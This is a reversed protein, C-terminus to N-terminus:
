VEANLKSARREYESNLLSYIPPEIKYMGLDNTPIQERAETETGIIWDFQKDIERYTEIIDEYHKILTGAVSLEEEIVELKEDNFRDAFVVAEEWSNIGTYRGNEAEQLWDGIDIYGGEDRKAVPVEMDAYEILSDLANIEDFVSELLTRVENFVRDADGLSKSGQVDEITTEYEEKREELTQSLGSITDLHDLFQESIRKRRRV